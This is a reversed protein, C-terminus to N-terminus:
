QTWAHFADGGTGIRFFDVPQHGSVLIVDNQQIHIERRIGDAAFFAEVPQFPYQFDRRFSDNDQDGGVRVCLLGYTGDFGACGVKDRFGPLVFLHQCGYQRSEFKTEATRFHPRELRM